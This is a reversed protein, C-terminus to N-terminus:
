GFGIPRIFRYRRDDLGHRYYNEKLLGKFVLLEGHGCGLAGLDFGHGIQLRGKSALGHCV